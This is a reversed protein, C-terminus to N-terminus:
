AKGKGRGKGKGKASGKANSRAKDQAETTHQAKTTRRTAYGSSPKKQKKGRPAKSPGGTANAPVDSDDEPEDEDSM